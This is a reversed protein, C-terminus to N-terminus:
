YNVILNTINVSGLGTALDYGATAPFGPQLASLSTSSVGIGLTSAGNTYCDFSGAQCAVTNDGVTVDYFLCARSVTGTSDANCSKALVANAQQLQALEYLRPAVTGIRGGDAQSILAAIGAFDPAAFSTGGFASGLFDTPNSFDCPVGGESTDSMCELYFHNWFGNAAFLSIDPIDRVGDDPIGTVGTQFSPKAYLLSEGGSGGVVNQYIYGASTPSVKNCNAIAGSAGVGLYNVESSCSNDWPIEPVYSKASGGDTANTASWYTSNLGLVTDGFDTGGVATVYPNTALGNVNLGNTALTAGTDAIDSAGDGTSVFVPIGEAAAEENINAWANLFALSNGTEAGGYSVSISVAKSSGEVLNMLSTMVGFGFTGGSCAAEVIKASPAVASTWEADLAAEGEDATFGPDTCGGPHTISLKGSYGSLGFVSRFTNWDAPKIDTQEAVAITENQGTLSAGLFGNRTQTLNYITAFDPPTVAYYTTGSVTMTYSSGVKHVTGAAMASKKAASPATRMPRPLFDSLGVGDVVPVLATPVSPAGLAAMHSEGNKTFAHLATHFAANVAAASGSFAISMGTPSVSDVKLGESALWSTTADIDAQAPGYESRLTAPTLWQRYSSSSRDTQAAVLADLAAQRAAPRKLFLEVHDLSKGSAIAGKDAAGSLASPVSSALPTVRADSVVGTVLPTASVEAAHSAGTLATTALFLGATIARRDTTFPM